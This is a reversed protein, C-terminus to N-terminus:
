GTLFRVDAYVTDTGVDGGIPAGTAFWCGALFSLLAAIYFLTMLALAPWFLAGRRQAAGRRSVQRAALAALLSVLGSCVFGALFAMLPIDLDPPEFEGGVIGLSFAALLLAAGGNLWTLPRAGAAVLAFGRGREQDPLTTM